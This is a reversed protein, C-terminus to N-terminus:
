ETQELGKMEDGSDDKKADNEKEVGNESEGGDGEEDGGVLRRKSRNAREDGSSDSHDRKKSNVDKTLSYSGGRITIMRESGPTEAHGNQTPSAVKTSGQVARADAAEHDAKSGTIIGVGGDEEVHGHDVVMGWYEVPVESGDELRRYPAPVLGKVNRKFAMLYMM